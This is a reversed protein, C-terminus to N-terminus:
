RECFPLRANARVEDFSIENLMKGNEFVPILIEEINKNIDMLSTRDSFIRNSDKAYYTTVIGTLSRKGSDTIPDKFLDFVEGTLTERATAKQAFSFQDRSGGHTLGGGMGFIINSICYKNEIVNDVLQRLSKQNMGDGQIVGIYSPLVKFGKDNTTYGFCEALIDLIVIPVEVPSGSDPRLVVKGGRKGLEIVRDKLRTGIFERAFRFPDYLDIVISVVPILYTCGADIRDLVHELRDLMKVAAKYDDKRVAVANAAMTSHESAIVSSTYSKNTHYYYKIYRNAQACDSGSFLVAHAISAIIDSETSDAGRSGFNHLAYNVYSEDAGTFKAKESLFDFISRCVSAVTTPKWVGRQLVTEIYSAISAVRLKKDTVTVEVLVTGVPVPKGEPVAKIKLPLYGNHKEVIYDWVDRAFDFGQQNIEIEAEDIMEKTIQVELYDHIVQKYMPIVHETFEDPKRAIISTYIAVSDGPDQNVHDFKYVDTNLIPNVQLKM